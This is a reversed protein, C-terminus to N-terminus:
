SQYYLSQWFCGLNKVFKHIGLWIHATKIIYEYRTFIEYEGHGRHPTFLLMKLPLKKRLFVRVPAVNVYNYLAAEHIQDSLHNQPKIFDFVHRNTVADLTPSSTMPYSWSLDIKYEIQIFNHSRRFRHCTLKLAIYFPWKSWFLICVCNYFAVYLVDMLILLFRVLLGVVFLLALHCQPRWM